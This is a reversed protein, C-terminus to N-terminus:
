ELDGITAAAFERLLAVARDSEGALVAEHVDVAYGTLRDLDVSTGPISLARSVLPGSQDIYHLLMESGAARALVRMYDGLGSIYVSPRGGEAVATTVVDILRQLEARHEDTLGRVGESIAIRFFVFQTVLSQLVDDRDVPAVRTFQNPVMEVLGQDSLRALADRISARSSGLWEVIEDERLREGPELVGDAIADRIAIYVQDRLFTRNATQPM